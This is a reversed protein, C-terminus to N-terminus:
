YQAHYHGRVSVHDQSLYEDNRLPDSEDGVGLGFLHNVTPSLPIPTTDRAKFLDVQGQLPTDAQDRAGGVGFLVEFDMASADLTDGGHADFDYAADDLQIDDGHQLMNSNSYDLSRPNEERASNTHPSALSDEDFQVDSMDLDSESEWNLVDGPTYMHGNDQGLERMDEHERDVNRRETDAANKGGDHPSVGLREGQDEVQSDHRAQRKM